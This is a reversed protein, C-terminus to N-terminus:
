GQLPFADWAKKIKNAFIDEAVDAKHAIFLAYTNENFLAEDLAYISFFTTFGLQRSKLLIVSEYKRTGDPNHTQRYFDKQAPNCVFRVFEKDQTVIKYLHNLRWWRSKLLSKRKVESWDIAIEINEEEM